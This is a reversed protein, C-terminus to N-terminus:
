QEQKETLALSALKLLHAPEVSIAVHQATQKEMMKMIDM